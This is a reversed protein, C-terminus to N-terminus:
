EETKVEIQMVAGSCGEMRERPIRASFVYAASDEGESIRDTFTLVIVGADNVTQTQSGKFRFKHVGDATYVTNMYLVYKKFFDEDYSRVEDAAGCGEGYAQELLGAYTQAEQPSSLVINTHVTLDPMNDAGAPYKYLKMEVGNFKNVTTVVPDLGGRQSAEAEGWQPFTRIYDELFARIYACSTVQENKGYLQYMASDGSISYSKGGATFKVEFRGIDTNQNGGILAEGTLPTTLKDGGCSMLTDYIIQKDKNTVNVKGNYEGQGEDWSLNTILEGTDSQLSYSSGYEHVGYSFSFDEPAKARATYRGEWAGSEEIYYVGLATEAREKAIAGKAAPDFYYWKGDIKKWGFWKCGESYFYREGEAAMIGSYPVVEGANYSFLRGDAETFGAQGIGAAPVDFVERTVPDVAASATMGGCMVSAICIACISVGFFKKYSRM